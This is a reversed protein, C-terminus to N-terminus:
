YRCDEGMVGNGTGAGSANKLGQKVAVNKLAKRTHPHVRVKGPIKGKGMKRNSKPSRKVDDQM